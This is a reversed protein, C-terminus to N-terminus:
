ARKKKVKNCRYPEDDESDSSTETEDSETESVIM